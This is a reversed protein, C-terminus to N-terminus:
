RALWARLRAFASPGRSRRLANERAVQRRAFAQERM